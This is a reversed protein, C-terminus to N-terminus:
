RRKSAAKEKVMPTQQEFYGLTMSSDNEIIVGKTGDVLYATANFNAGDNVTFDGNISTTPAYTNSIGNDASVAGANTFLENWDEFGILNGQGDAVFAGVGDQQAGTSTVQTTGLAYGSTLSAITLSNATQQWGLGSMVDPTNIILDLSIILARGDGTLYLQFNYGYSANDTVSVTVDGTPDVSYTNYPGGSATGGQGNQNLLDNFSVTGSVTGVDNVVDNNFSVLGAVNLPGNTDTGSTAIVYTYGSISAPTFSSAAVTQLLATGGTMGGLSDSNFNEVLRITNSDVMYGELVLSGSYGPLCLNPDAAPGCTSNLTFTVFGFSDPATVSSTTLTQSQYTAGICPITDNDCADSIDLISGAGSVAGGGGDVNIVGGFALPLQGFDLGSSYFAYAGAPIALSSSQLNLEGRGTAWGDYETLLAKSANVLSANLVTQGNGITPDALNLTILLNGDPSPQVSGSTIPQASDTIYSDFFNYEGGTINGSTVTFAGAYVYPGSATAYQPDSDTGIVQFVYNGDSLTTAVSNTVPIAPTSHSVANDTVSTATITVFGTSAPATYTVATGSATSPSSFSGCSGAPACSWTVTPTAATDNSVTATIDKTENTGITNPVGGFAITIGSAPNITIASTSASKTTDAVSTATIVVTSSPVAAPATYTVPAGSATGSPTFTGCSGAPTCSWTVGKNASDNSVTATIAATDNVFLSTPATGMTVNVAPPPPNNNGGGGSGNGGCAALVMFTALSISLAFTQPFKLNRSRM